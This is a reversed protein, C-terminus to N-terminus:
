TERRRRGGRAADEVLLIVVRPGMGLVAPAVTGVKDCRTRKAM